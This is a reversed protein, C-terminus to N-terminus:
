AKTILVREIKVGQVGTVVLRLNNYKVQEGEKPIHGLTAMLFGAITEYEGQPLDLALDDNAEDIRLGGSVQITQEDITEVDSDRDHMGDGLDGVIEEVLLELTVLGATGGYEDIVIAMEKKQAQMEPLLKAILKSEPVFFAPRVLTSVPADTAVDKKGLAMLVDKISLVGVVNDMNDEYVPFRTYAAAAFVKLFDAISTNKEVGVMEPRPVMVERVRRDGFKFVNELMDGAVEEVTGEEEGIDILMRLEAQTVFPLKHGPFRGIVGAILRPLLAFIYVIPTMLRIILEIPRGAFLSVREAHQAAITKPTIEGFIVILVTMTATAILVGEEGLFSVALATGISSALIIFTNETLLITAFLRDHHDVVRKVAQAARNGQEALHRIRIKSVSILSAESSSFFAVCLICVVMIVISLGVDQSGLPLTEL